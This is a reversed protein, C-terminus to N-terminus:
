LVKSSLHCLFLSFVAKGGVRRWSLNVIHYHSLQSRIIWKIQVEFIVKLHCIKLYIKKEKCFSMSNEPTSRKYRWNWKGHLHSFAKGQLFVCLTWIHWQYRVHVCIIYHESLYFVISYSLIIRDFCKWTHKGKELQTKNNLKRILLESPFKCILLRQPACCLIISYVECSTLSM